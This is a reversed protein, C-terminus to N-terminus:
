NNYKEIYKSKNFEERYFRGLQKNNSTDKDREFDNIKIDTLISDTRISYINNQLNYKIITNFLYLRTFSYIFPKFRAYNSKFLQEKFLYIEKKKKEGKRNDFHKTNYHIFKLEDEEDLEYDEEDFLYMVYKNLQIFIGHIRSLVNKILRNHKLQRKMNYIDQIFPGFIYNSKICKNPKNNTEVKCWNICSIKNNSDLLEFDCEAIFAMNLDINTYYGHNNIKILKQLNNKGNKIIKINNYISYNLLKKNNLYKIFDNFEINNTIKGKSIPVYLLDNLETNSNYLAFPYCSSIDYKYYDKDENIKDNFVLQGNINDIFNLEELEIKDCKINYKNTNNYINELIFDNFSNFSLINYKIKPTLLKDYEKIPQNKYKKNLQFLNIEKVDEIFLNLLDIDNLDEKNPNYIGELIKHSINFANDILKNDKDEITEFENEKINYITFVKNHNLAIKNHKFCNMNYKQYLIYEKGDFLNNILRTNLTRIYNKNSQYIIKDDEDYVNINIKTQDEIFYIGNNNINENNIEKVSKYKGQSHLKNLLGNLKNKFPEINGFPIIDTNDKLLTLLGSM